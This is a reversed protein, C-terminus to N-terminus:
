TTAFKLYAKDIISVTTILYIHTSFKSLYTHDSILILNTAENM